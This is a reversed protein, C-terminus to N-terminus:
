LKDLHFGVTLGIVHALGGYTGPLPAYTSERPNLITLQYALDFQFDGMAYGGGANITVRNADPLNPALTDEPSPSPDVKFGLRATVADTVAYEGGFRYSWVDEWRKPDDSTLAADEFVVKLSRFSSWNVHWADVGIRLKEFPKYSLGLQWQSPLLIDATVDQDKLRGSLEPPVDKFDVSGEFPLLVNGRYVVAATLMDKMIDVQIGANAGSGWTAGGLALSGKSDVFNLVREQVVVGRVFDMGIGVRLRDAVKFGFSPSIYFTQLQSRTILQEGVWGDPWKATNGFPTYIGLGFAVEDSLKVSAFVHPPTSPTSAVTVKEGGTPEFSVGPVILHLGAMVRLGQTLALGAPNYYIASPDDVGATMASGMSTARATQTDLAFGAALASGASFVTAMVVASLLKKM